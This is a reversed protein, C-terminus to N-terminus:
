AFQAYVSWKPDEEVYSQLEHTAFQSRLSALNPGVLAPSRTYFVFERMGATTIALVHLSAQERELCRCLADEIANLEEMEDNTALGDPKPERLPVAVGVRFRYEPHGVLSAATANRRVFIPRGELEGHAVSWQSEDPYVRVKKRFLGLV